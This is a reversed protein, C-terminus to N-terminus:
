SGLSGAHVVTNKGAPERSRAFHGESPCVECGRCINVASLGDSIPFIATLLTKDATAIEVGTKEGIMHCYKVLNIIQDQSMKNGTATLRGAFLESVQPMKYSARLLMQKAQTNNMFAFARSDYLSCRRVARRHLEQRNIYFVDKFRVKLKIM